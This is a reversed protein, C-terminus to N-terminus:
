DGEQNLSGLVDGAIVRELAGNAKRLILAGDEDIDIAAGEVQEREGRVSVRAGITNSLAKWRERIPEFGSIQFDEYLSELQALIEQVLQVRSVEKGCEERLSTAIGAIEEPFHARETNVNIGMGIVIYNIRDMEASMESLIGGAKRGELIVDNPWKLRPKLGTLQEIAQAVAVGAILPFRLAESPKIAPRLIISLYVGGPPSAWGRGIRGRGAAQTEAVVITGENAGQAALAKAADQTSTLERHYAIQQGLLNTRLGAKIEEPLLSDPTSVLSYGKGPSSEIRYGERRLATIHKWVATRSIGLAQGLEEGSIRGGHRLTHLITEKMTTHSIGM